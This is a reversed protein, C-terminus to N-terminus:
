QKRPVALGIKSLTEKLKAQDVPKVLYAASQVSMMAQMVDQASKLSTLMVIKCQSAIGVGKNRELARIAKGASLGDMDPMLIDLLILQYPEGSEVSAQYKAVADNGDVAADVIPVAELITRIMERGLEDDDVVLCRNLEM